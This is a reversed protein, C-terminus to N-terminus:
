ARARIRKVIKVHTNLAQGPVGKKFRVRLVGKRGHSSVIKGFIKPDLAPWGVKWGILRMAESSDTEAVKILCQKPYQKKLGIRYNLILGELEEVL